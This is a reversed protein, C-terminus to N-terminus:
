SRGSSNGRSRRRPPRHKEYISRCAASARAAWACEISSRVMQRRNMGSMVVPMQMRQELLNEKSLQDLAFWVLKEDVATGLEESLSSAIQSPSSIGDCHQWVLAATKNLCHAQNDITDYVLLEDNMERVVLGEKRAFPAQQKQSDRM